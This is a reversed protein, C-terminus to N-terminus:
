SAPFPILFKMRILLIRFTPKSDSQCSSLTSSLKLTVSSLHSMGHTPKRTNACRRLSGLKNTRSTPIDRVIRYLPHLRFRRPHSKSRERTKQAPSSSGVFNMRPRAKRTQCVARTREYHTDQVLSKPKGVGQFYNGKEILPDSRMQCEVRLRKM